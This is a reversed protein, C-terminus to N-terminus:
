VIVIFVVIFSNMSIDEGNGWFNFDYNINELVM